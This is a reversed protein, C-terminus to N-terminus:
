SGACKDMAFRQENLRYQAKMSAQWAPELTNPPTKYGAGGAGIIDLLRLQKDALSFVLNLEQEPDSSVGKTLLTVKGPELTFKRISFYKKRKGGDYLRYLGLPSIVTYYSDCTEQRNIMHWPGQLQAVPAPEIPEESKGCGALAMAAAMACILPFRIM